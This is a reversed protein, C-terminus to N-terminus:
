IFKRSYILANATLVNKVLRVILMLCVNWHLVNATLVGKSSTAIPTTMVNRNLSQKELHNAAGLVVRVVLILQAAACMVHRLNTDM